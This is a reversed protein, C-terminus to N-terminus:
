DKKEYKAKLVDVRAKLQREFEVVNKFTGKEIDSILDNMLNMEDRWVPWIKTPGFLDAARNTDTFINADLMWQEGVRRFFVPKTRYFFAPRTEGDDPQWGLTFRALDGREKVEPIGIREWTLDIAKDTCSPRNWRGLLKVGADGFKAETVAVLKRSAVWMGAVVDLAGSANGDDITWCKKATELDNAKTAALYARLTAPPSSLDPEGAFAPLAAFIAFMAFTFRMM